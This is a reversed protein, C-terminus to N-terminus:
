RSRTRRTLVEEQFAIYEDLIQRLTLIKPQMQNDVLALLIVGFTTQM